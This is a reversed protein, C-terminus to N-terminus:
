LCLLKPASCITTGIRRFDLHTIRYDDLMRDAACVVDGGASAVSPRVGRHPQQHHLEACVARRRWGLLRRGSCDLCVDSPHRLAPRLADLALSSGARWKRICALKFICYLLGAIAVPLVSKKFFEKIAETRTMPPVEM